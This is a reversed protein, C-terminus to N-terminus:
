VFYTAMDDANVQACCIGTHGDHLTFRGFNELIRFAGAGRGGDHSECGFPFSKDAHWCFTLCDSIRFVCYVCGLPQNTTPKIIRLHLFVPSHTPCVAWNIWCKKMGSKPRLTITTVQTQGDTQRDTGMMRTLM